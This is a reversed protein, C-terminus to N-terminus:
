RHSRGRPNEYLFLALWVAAIASVTAVLLPGTM